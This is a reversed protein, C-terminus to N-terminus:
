KTIASRVEIQCNKKPIRFERLNSIEEDFSTPVNKMNKKRANGNM